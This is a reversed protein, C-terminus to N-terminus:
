EPVLVADIVHIVGNKAEVDVATVKSDNIRVEAGTVTVTLPKGEVSTLTSVKVVDASGLKNAVVHYTLIDALMAKNEPKLLTDVTGAPLKQFASDTPAFVTFPGPGRLTTELGAAKVAAVLTSFTGAQAATDVVDAKSSSTSGDDSDGCGFAGACVIGCFVWNFVRM